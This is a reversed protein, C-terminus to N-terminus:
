AIDITLTLTHTNIIITNTTSTTTSTTTDNYVAQSYNEDARLARLLRHVSQLAWGMM